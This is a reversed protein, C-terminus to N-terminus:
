RRLLHWNVAEMVIRGANNLCSREQVPTKNPSRHDIVNEGPVFESGDALEVPRVTLLLHCQVSAM